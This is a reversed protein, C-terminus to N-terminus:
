GKTLDAADVEVSVARNLLTIAVAIRLAGRTRTVVGQVGALPGREITVLAGAVYPCEAAPKASALAIRLSEIEREDILTPELSTPLAQVVGPLRLIGGLEGRVFIYGPFLPRATTKTRDSWRTEQTLTPLYVDCGHETLFQQVRFEHNSKLRLAYWGARHAPQESPTSGGDDTVSRKRSQPMLLQYDPQAITKAFEVAPIAPIL